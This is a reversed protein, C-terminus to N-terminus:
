MAKRPCTRGRDDGRPDRSEDLDRRGESHLTRTKRAGEGTCTLSSVLKRECAPDGVDGENEAEDERVELLQEVLRREDGRRNSGRRGVDEEGAGAAEDHEPVDCKGEKSNQLALRQSGSATRATQEVRDADGGREVEEGHVLEGGKRGLVVVGVLDSEDEMAESAEDAQGIVGVRGHVSEPQKRQLARGVDVGDEAAVHM